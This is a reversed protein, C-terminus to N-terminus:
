TQQQARRGGHLSAHDIAPSDAGQESSPGALPRRRWHGAPDSHGKRECSATAPPRRGRGQESLAAPRGASARGRGPAPPELSLRAAGTQPWPDREAEERGKWRHSGSNVPRMKKVQLTGPALAVGPAMGLPRAARALGPLRGTAAHPSPTPVPPLAGHTRAGEAGGSCRGQAHGGPGAPAATPWSTPTLWTATLWTPAMQGMERRKSSSHPHLSPPAPLPSQPM